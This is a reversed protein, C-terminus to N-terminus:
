CVFFLSLILLSLATFIINITILFYKHTNNKFKVFKFCTLAMISFIILMIFISLNRGNLVFLSTYTLIWFFLNAYTLM